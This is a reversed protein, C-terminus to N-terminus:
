VHARGIELYTGPTLSVNQFRDGGGFNHATGVLSGPATTPTYIGEYSKDGYNGASTFYAVGLAKVANVAKAIMGDSFFPETIYTIDDTIVNCGATQLNKIQQAMNGASIFGSSFALTSKPAVDHVIQLMARGEDSQPSSRFLM